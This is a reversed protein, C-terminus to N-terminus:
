EDGNWSGAHQKPGVPGNKDDKVFIPLLLSALQGLFTAQLVISLVGLAAALLSQVAASTLHTTASVPGWRYPYDLWKPEPPALEICDASVIEYHKSCDFLKGRATDNRLMFEVYTGIEKPGYFRYESFNESMRPYNAHGNRSAYVVVQEGVRELGSFDLRQGGGHQSFFVSVPRSTVHNIRLSVYEWDGYHEGMPALNADGRSVEIGALWSKLFATGPGNYSSFLWFQLDTYDKNIDHKAHVYARAVDLNGRKASDPLELWFREGERPGTPLDSASPGKKTAGTKDDHLTCQALHWEVSSLLYPENPHLYLLPGFTQILEKIKSLSLPAKRRVNNSWCVRPTPGPGYQGKYVILEGAVNLFVFYEGRAQDGSKTEWVRGGKQSPTGAYVCLNGDPEMIAFYSGRPQSQSLAGWVFTRRDSPGTGAYVCFNGDRQMIAYFGGDPSVLYEDERLVENTRLVQKSM